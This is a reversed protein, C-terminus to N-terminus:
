NDLGTVLSEEDLDFATLQWARNPTENGATYDPSKTIFCWNTQYHVTDDRFDFSFEELNNLLDTMTKNVPSTAALNITITAGTKNNISRNHTGQPDQKSTQRNESYSVTIMDDQGFGFVQQGNILCIMNAANYTKM